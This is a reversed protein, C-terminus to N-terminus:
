DAPEPARDRGDDMDVDRELEGESHVPQAHRHVDTEAGPGHVQSRLGPVDREYYSDRPSRRLPPSGSRSRPSLSRSAAPRSGHPVDNRYGRPERSHSLYGDREDVPYRSRSGAYPPTTGRQIVDAGEREEQERDRDRLEREHDREPQVYNSLNTAPGMRQHNHLQNSGRSSVPSRLHSHSGPSHSDSLPQLPPQLRPPPPEYASSRHARRDRDSVHYGPPYDRYTPSTPEPPVQQPHSYGSSPTQLPGPGHAGRSRSRFSSSTTPPHTYPNHSGQHRDYPHSPELHQASPMPPPVPQRSDRHGSPYRSSASTPTHSGPTPPPGSIAEAVQVPQGDSGTVVRVPIGRSRYWEVAAADNPDAVVLSPEVPERSQHHNHPPPYSHAPPTPHANPFSQRSSLREYLIARELRLRQINRKSQLVKVQLKDNDMEIEKVKKKLERYKAKYKADEAGAAIGQTYNKSKQRSNVHQASQPYHSPGPSPNPTKRATKRLREAQGAM